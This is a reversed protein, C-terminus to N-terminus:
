HEYLGVRLAPTPFFPTPLDMSVGNQQRRFRGIRECPDAVTAVGNRCSGAVARWMSHVGCGAGYCCGRDNRFRPGPISLGGTEAIVFVGPRLAM